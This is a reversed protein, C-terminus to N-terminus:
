RGSSGPSSHWLKRPAQRTDDGAPRIDAYPSQKFGSAHVLVRRRGDAGVGTSGASGPEGTM